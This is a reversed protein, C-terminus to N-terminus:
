PMSAPLIVTRGGPTDGDSQCRDEGRGVPRFRHPDEEDAAVELALAAVDQQLREGDSRSSSAAAVSPTARSSSRTVRASTAGAGPSRTWRSQVRVAGLQDREEVVASM